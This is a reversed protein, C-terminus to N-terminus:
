RNSQIVRHLLNAIMGALVSPVFGVIANRIWKVARDRKAGQGRLRPARFCGLVQLGSPLWMGVM